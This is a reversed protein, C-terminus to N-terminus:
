IFTFFGSVTVFLDSGLSSVASQEARSPVNRVCKNKKSKSRGNRQKLNFLERRMEKVKKKGGEKSEAGEREEKEVKNKEEKRERM